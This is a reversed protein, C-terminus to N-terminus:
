TFLTKINSVNRMFFARNHTKPYDNEVNRVDDHSLDVRCPFLLATDQHDSISSILPFNTIIDATVADVEDRITDDKQLNLGGKKSTLTILNTFM